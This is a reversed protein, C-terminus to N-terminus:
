FGGEEIRLDPVWRVDGKDVDFHLTQKRTIRAAGRMKPVKFVRAMPQGRKEALSIVRDSAEALALGYASQGLEAPDDPAMLANRQVQSTAAVILGSGQALGKVALAADQMKQWSDGKGSILHFGDIALFDPEYQKALSLIDDVTFVGASGSDKIILDNRKAAAMEEIYRKYPEVEQRGYQIDRVSFDYGMFRGIAADFKAEVEEISAEPSLVLVRKQSYHYVYAALWFLLTSKGTNLPGIIACLESPKWTDGPQDFCGLGTLLGIVEGRDVKEKKDILAQLRTMADFDFFSTRGARSKIITNLDGVLKSITGSPDEDIDEISELIVRRTLRTYTIKVLEETFTVDDTVDEYFEVGAYARLDGNAVDFGGQAREVLYNWAKAHAAVQFSEDIVGKEQARRVSAATRMSSLVTLELESPSLDM